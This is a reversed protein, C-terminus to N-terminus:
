TKADEPRLLLAKYSNLINQSEVRRSSGSNSLCTYAPVIETLCYEYPDRDRIEERIYLVKKEGIEINKLGM